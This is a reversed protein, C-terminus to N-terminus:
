RNLLMQNTIQVMIDPHKKFLARWEEGNRTERASRASSAIPKIWDNFGFLVMLEVAEVFNEDVEVKFAGQIYKTSKTLIIKYSGSSYCKTIIEKVQYFHCFKMLKVLVNWELRDVYDLNGETLIKAFLETTEKNFATDIKVCRKEKKTNKNLKTELCKKMVPVFTNIIQLELPISFEDGVLHISEDDDMYSQLLIDKLSEM